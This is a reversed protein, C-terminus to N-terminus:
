GDLLGMVHDAIALCATLGPSEIGFLNILGPVGHTRVNEIMFDRAPEGLAQLKPRIGAYDPRLAGDPLGPWYRRIAAYFAGGRAPDVTYNQDEVWEVDPGFRVAGQLDLTLHVGLGAQQPVPYVLHSFGPNGTMTFYNGKALFMRPVYAADLGQLGEAFAVAGLGAANVVRHCLVDAEDVRVVLGEDTVRGGRAPQAVVIGAGAREADRQLSRMLAHSDIIGTTDSLLGATARVDPELEQVDTASLWTVDVGNDSATRRIASLQSAEQDDTAVILKGCRRHPVSNDRCYDYLAHKGAVCLRAKLSGPPYYIGAHIVESNRSSIGSGIQDTAEVLMVERGTLALRRAIALGVVGGGVVLCEVTDVRGTQGPTGVPSPVARLGLSALMLLMTTAPTARSARAPQEDLSEASEALLGATSVVEAAAEGLGSADM